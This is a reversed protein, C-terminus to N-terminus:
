LLGRLEYYERIAWRLPTTISTAERGKRDKADKRQTNGDTLQLLIFNM